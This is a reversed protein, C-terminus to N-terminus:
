SMGMRMAPWPPSITPPLRPRTMAEMAMTPAMTPESYVISMPAMSIPGSAPQTM